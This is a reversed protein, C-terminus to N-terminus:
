EKDFRAGGVKHATLL